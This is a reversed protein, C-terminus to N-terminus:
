FGYTEMTYVVQSMEEPLEAYLQLPESLVGEPIRLRASHLFLRKLGQKRMLRNFERDGYRDDGAVPNGQSACHVRIQHMRGTHLEAEVLTAMSFTNVVRFSTRSQKGDDDVVMGHQGGERQAKLAMEVMLPGSWRGEILALYHKGIALLAERNRALMLLGSTELDLRHALELRGERAQRLCEVLGYTQESGGHVALGSPKNIVLLDDDEHVIASLLREILADPARRAGEEAPTFRVPPLRVRDGFALRRTPKARGGNVRVQGSRLLRYVHSRPVGKWVRLLFNDLRQGADDAGIEQYSVQGSKHPM